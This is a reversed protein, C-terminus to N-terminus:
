EELLRFLINDSFTADKTLNLHDRPLFLVQDIEMTSKIKPSYKAGAREDGLVSSRLVIGDGPTYHNDEFTGDKLDIKIREKTQIADGAVLTISVQKPPKSKKDLAKHFQKASRLNKMLHDYAIQRITERSKSPLLWSLVSEEKPDMLGWKYKKWLSADYIDVPKNDHDIFARHRVRPMLEYLSPYTGLIGAPYHPINTSPIYRVWQPVFDKGDILEEFAPVSGNNPTGVLILKELNKAGSWNLHPLSGDSPLQQKGYRAYYRAILGGMSHAVIDFKIDKKDIGYREKIKRRVEIKKTDIFKGLLVANEASSRRWDYHFQFCTFHDDGYDIAGAEALNQDRYGGAGLTELISAYAQPEVPVGLVQFKIRDLAGTSKVSDKLSRLPIGLKMPLAVQRAKEPTDPGAFNNNFVGWIEYGAGEHYLKSGLLGPIVIVPNRHLDSQQAADKYINNLQPPSLKYTTSCASVLLALILAALYNNM